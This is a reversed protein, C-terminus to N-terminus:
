GGDALAAALLEAALAHGAATWHGDIPFYLAGPEGLPTARARFEDLPVLCELSARACIARLMDADATPSWADASMNSAVGRALWVDDHVAAKSPVWFVLFRSGAAQVRDRLEVLLAETIRWREATEADPVRQWPLFDPPVAPAINTEAEDESEAPTAPRREIVSRVLRYLASGATLRDSWALSTFALAPV